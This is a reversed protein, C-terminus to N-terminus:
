VGYFKKLRTLNEEAMEKYDPLEELIFTYLVLIPIGTVAALFSVEQSNVKGKLLTKIFEQKHHRYDDPNYM